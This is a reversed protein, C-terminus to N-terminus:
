KRPRGAGAGDAAGSDNARPTHYKGRGGRPLGLGAEAIINKQIQATGGGIILGLAYMYQTQWAGEDRVHRSGRKLAGREGMADIALACLDYNLQCGNLKTVLGSVGSERNRLRDTLLRLAHYKMALVRAELRMLRDRYVPDDLLGTEGLVDVCGRLFTETANSRGLM